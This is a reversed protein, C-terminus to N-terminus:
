DDIREWMYVALYPPLANVSATQGNTQVGDGHNVTPSLTGYNSMGFKQTATWAAGANGWKGDMQSSTNASLLAAITGSGHSHTASGGSSGIAYSGGGALLFRDKLQQWTGGILASPSVNKTTIYISGKPFAASLVDKVAAKANTGLAQGELTQASVTGASVTGSVTADGTLNIDQYVNM